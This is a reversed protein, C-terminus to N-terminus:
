KKQFVHILVGTPDILFIQKGWPSIQPGSFKAQLFAEKLVKELQKIFTELDNVYISLMTNEAWEKVYADQLIMHNDEYSIHQTTIEGVKKHHIIFGIAEYFRISLMFDQCPIFPITM